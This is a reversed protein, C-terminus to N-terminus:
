EKSPMSWTKRLWLPTIEYSKLCNFSYSKAVFLWSTGLPFTLLQTRYPHIVFEEMRQARWGLMLEILGEDLIGSSFLRKNGWLYHARQKQFKSEVTMLGEIAEWHIELLIWVAQSKAKGTGWAEGCEIRRAWEMNSYQGIELERWLSTETQFGGCM